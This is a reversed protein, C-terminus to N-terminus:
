ATTRVLEWSVIDDVSQVKAEAAALAWLLRLVAALDMLLKVTLRM